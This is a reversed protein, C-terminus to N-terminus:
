LQNLIPVNKVLPRVAVVTLLTFAAFTLYSKVYANMSSKEQISRQRGDRCGKLKACKGAGAFFLGWLSNGM